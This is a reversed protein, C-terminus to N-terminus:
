NSRIANSLTFAQEIADVILSKQRELAWNLETRAEEFGDIYAKKLKLDNSYKCGEMSLERLKFNDNFQGSFENYFRSQIQKYVDDLNENMKDFFPKYEKEFDLKTLSFAENSIRERLISQLSSISVNAIFDNGNQAEKMNQIEKSM